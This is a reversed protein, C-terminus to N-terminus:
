ECAEDESMVEELIELADAVLAPCFTSLRGSQMAREYEGQKSFDFDTLERCIETGHREMFKQQFELAKRKMQLKKATEDPAGHGYKWGLVLLAGSVAGCVEGRGMGGGFAAAMRGAEEREYGFEEAWQMAVAQACNLASKLQLAAQEQTLKHSM